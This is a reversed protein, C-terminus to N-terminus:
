GSSDSAGSSETMAREVGKIAGVWTGPTEIGEVQGNEARRILMDEHAGAFVLRGDRHYRIMTLTAHDNGALRVRINDVLADNVACVLNSPSMEPQNRVLAAVMSQIMMMILGSNLGHGSVDGIGIWCGGDTPLVDYYDGGVESTPTMQAVIELGEVALERPLISTQIRTAIDLEKTLRTARDTVAQGMLNFADGLEGIENRSKIVVPESADGRQLRRAAGALQALPLLIQKRVIAGLLIATGLALGISQWFMRRRSQQYIVNEPELSFLISTEGLKRGNQDLIPRSVKVWDDTVSIGSPPPQVSPPAFTPDSKWEALPVASDIESVVVYILDRTSQLHRVEGALADLDQFDLAPSVSAAFLDAVMTAAQTKANLLHARERSTLELFTVVSATALVAAMM